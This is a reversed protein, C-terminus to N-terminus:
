RWDYLIEDVQMARSVRGDTWIVVSKV